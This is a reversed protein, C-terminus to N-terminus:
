KTLPIEKYFEALQKDLKKVAKVYGCNLSCMKVYFPFPPRLQEDNGKELFLAKISRAPDGPGGPDITGFGAFYFLPVPKAISQVPELAANLINGGIHMQRVEEEVDSFFFYVPCFSFKGEFAEAIRHQGSALKDQLRAAKEVNGSAEAAQIKEDTSKLSVLLITNRLERIQKGAIDDQAFVLAPFCFLLFLAAKM